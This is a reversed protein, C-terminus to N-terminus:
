ATSFTDPANGFSQRFFRWNTTGDNFTRTSTNPSSGDDAGNNGTISNAGQWGGTGLSDTFTVGSASATAEFAAWGYQGAGPAVSAGTGGSGIVKSGNSTGSIPTLSALLAALDTPNDIGVGVRPRSDIGTPAVNNTVAAGSFAVLNNPTSALDRLRNSGPAYAFTLTEGNAVTPVTVTAHTSDVWAFASPAHSGGAVAFDGAAPTGATTQDMPESFVLDIHTPSANAVIRSAITPATTDGVSGSDSANQSWSFLIQRPTKYLRLVNEINVGTKFGSDSHDPLAGTITVTHGSNGDGIFTGFTEAFNVAAALVPDLTLAATMSHEAMVYRGNLPPTLTFPIPNGVIMAALAVGQAASLADTTGGTTLDNVVSPVEFVAQLALIQGNSIPNSGVNLTM